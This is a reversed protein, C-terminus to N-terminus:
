PQCMEPLFVGVGVRVTQGSGRVSHELRTIGPAEDALKRGVCRCIRVQGSCDCVIYSLICGLGLRGSEERVGGYGQQLHQHRYQPALQPTQAAEELVVRYM